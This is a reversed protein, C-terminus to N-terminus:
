SHFRQRLHRPVVPCAGAPPAFLRKRVAAIRDYLWDLLRPPCVRALTAVLRWLGGLRRLAHLVAASRTLLEGGDTQVVVSQPLAARREVPIRQQFYEGGLPAYDFMGRNDRHALFRVVGHCLGCEGDYFITEM